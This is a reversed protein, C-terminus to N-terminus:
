FKPIENGIIYKEYFDTEKKELLKITDENSERDIFYYRIEEHDFSWQNNLETFFRLKAVLVCFSYDNYVALYHLVQTLYEDPLRGQWKELDRSGKVDHTKIELIGKGKYHYPSKDEIVKITGDLTATMFPKDIRVAMEIVKKKPAIIKWGWSKFNLRAIERILNECAIGYAQSETLESEVEKKNFWKCYIDFPKQWHSKGIIASASSGGIKRGINLWQSRSNFKQIEYLKSITNKQTKLCKERRNESENILKDNKM